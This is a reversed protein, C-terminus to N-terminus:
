TARAVYTYEHVGAWVMSSFAEVREDRLNQHEYWTRSWWWPGGRDQQAPDQPLAGTVALAPNLPELGAPLPDVLAVQHRRSEAVMTVRVRVKAGAKVRWTGDAARTVDSPDDVAEYLREVAFGHDAPELTLDSPAY